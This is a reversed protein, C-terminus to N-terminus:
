QISLGFCNIIERKLCTDATRRGRQTGVQAWKYILEELVLKFKSMGPIGDSDPFVSAILNLVFESTFETPSGDTRFRLNFPQVDALKAKLTSSKRLVMDFTERPWLSPRSDQIVIDVSQDKPYELNTISDKLSIPKGTTPDYRKAPPLQGGHSKTLASVVGANFERQSCPFDIISHIGDITETPSYTRTVLFACETSKVSESVQKMFERIKDTRVSPGFICTDIGQKAILALCTQLTGPEEVNEFLETSNICNHLRSRLSLRYEILMCTGLPQAGKSHQQSGTKSAIPQPAELTHQKMIM